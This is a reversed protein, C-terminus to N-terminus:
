RTVYVIGITTGAGIFLGAAGWLVPSEYWPPAAVRDIARSIQNIADRSAQLKETCVRREVRGTDELSEYEIECHRLDVSLCNTCDKAWLQPVLVGVCEAVDGPHM